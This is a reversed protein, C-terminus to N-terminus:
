LVPNLFPVACTRLALLCGLLWFLAGKWNNGFWIIAGFFTGLFIGFSLFIYLFAIDLTMRMEKHQAQAKAFSNQTVIVDIGGKSLLWGFPTGKSLTVMNM